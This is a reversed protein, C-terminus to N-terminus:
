PSSRQYREVESALNQFSGQLMKIRKRVGQKYNTVNQTLSKIMMRLEGSSPSGVSRRSEISKRPTMSKITGAITKADLGSKMGRMASEITKEDLAALAVGRSAAKDVLNGVLKHAQRFPIKYKMVFQEAVDLSIAYSSGSVAQMRDKNVQLSRVVGNVIKLISVAETTSEILQPKMDQLDRSYGSPLAKVIGLMAVLHATIVASKSRTLELPDPNKKQPM